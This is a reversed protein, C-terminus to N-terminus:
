MDSIYTNKLCINWYGVTLIAFNKTMMERQNRGLTNYWNIFLLENNAISGVNTWFLIKYLRASLNLCNYM